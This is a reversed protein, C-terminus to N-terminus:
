IICCTAHNTSKTRPGVNPIERQCTEVGCRIAAASGQNSIGGNTPLWQGARRRSARGAEIMHDRQKALGDSGTKRVLLLVSYHVRVRERLDDRVLFLEQGVRVVASMLKIPVFRVQHRREAIDAKPTFRVNACTPYMPFIFHLPLHLTYFIYRPLKPFYLNAPPKYQQHLGTRLLFTTVPQAAPL